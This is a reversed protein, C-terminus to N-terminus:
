TVLLAGVDDNSALELKWGDVVVDPRFGGLLIIRTLPAFQVGSGVLVVTASTKQQVHAGPIFIEGVKEDGLDRLVIFRDPMPAIRKMIENRCRTARAIETEQPTTM